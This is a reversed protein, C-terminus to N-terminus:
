SWYFMRPGRSGLVFRILASGFDVPADFIVILRALASAVWNGFGFGIRTSTRGYSAFFGRTVAV